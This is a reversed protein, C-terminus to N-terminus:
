HNPLYKPSKVKQFLQISFCLILLKQNILNSYKVTTISSITTFITDNIDIFLLQDYFVYWKDDRQLIVGIIIYLIDKVINMCAAM